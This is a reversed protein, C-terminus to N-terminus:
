RYDVGFRYAAGLGLTFQDVAGGKRVIPSRGADGALRMWSGDLRLLWQPTLDYDARITAGYARLGADADFRSYRSRLAERRTVSFYTDFYDETAFSLKPGVSIKTGPMPRLIAQLGVDGVQGSHGGFGQRVEVYARWLDATYDVAVGVELSADVPKLGRLVKDVGRNREGLYRFSPAFGLGTDSGPQGTIPNLMFKMGVIPFPSVLYSKSGEYNPQLMPGAGLTVVVDDGPATQALAPVPLAALAVAIAPRLARM